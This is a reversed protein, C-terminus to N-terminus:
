VARCTYRGAEGSLLLPLDFCVSLAESTLAEDLRGATVVRGGRLLLAHTFGAPIEEVHHTVLITPPAAPDSALRSLRSVLRERGALDLGAAPEDLLLLDPDAMLTRALLVQQREGESLVGFPRDAVSAFGADTLVRRAQSRDDDGYDHWWPELAAHRASMVIDGAPVSAVLMRAVAASVVGIRRRLRRVDVQGLRHGLIEVTGRTPHLYGSALQLMTTKGSGNPGLVAWRDGEDVTWTVAALVPADGRIVDVGDFRLVLRNDDV